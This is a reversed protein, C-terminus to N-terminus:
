RESGFDWDRLESAILSRIMTVALWNEYDRLQWGSNTVLRRYHDPSNLTWLIDTARLETLGEDLAGIGTLGAVVSAAGTRRRQENEEALPALAADTDAAAQLVHFITGARSYIGAVAAAYAVLRTRPDPDNFVVEMWARDNVAVPEDDGAISVDLVEALVTQKNGFSAYITQVALGALDLSTQQLTTSGYGSEVFLRGAAEISSRRTRQAQEAPSM